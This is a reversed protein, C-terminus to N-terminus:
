NWPWIAPHCGTPSLGPSPSLPDDRCVQKFHDLSHRGAPQNRIDVSQGTGVRRRAPRPTPCLPADHDAPLFALGNLNLAYGEAIITIAGAERLANGLLAPREQALAQAFEAMTAQADVRLAVASVGARIRATGFLEVTISVTAGGATNRATM